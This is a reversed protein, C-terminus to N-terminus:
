LFYIACNVKFRIEMTGNQSSTSFFQQCLYILQIGNIHTANPFFSSCLLRCLQCAPVLDPSLPISSALSVCATAFMSDAISSGRRCYSSQSNLLASCSSGYIARASYTAEGGCPIWRVWKCVHTHTHTRISQGALHLRFKRPTAHWFAPSGYTTRGAVQLRIEIAISQRQSQSRSQSQRQSLCQSQSHSQSQSQSHTQYAGLNHLM